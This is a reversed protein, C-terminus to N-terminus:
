PFPHPPIDRWDALGRPSWLPGGLFPLAHHGHLPQLGPVLVRAVVWDLGEAPLAPPTLVRFLAPRDAGLRDLLRDLNETRPDDMDVCPSPKHLVTRKLEDPRMSYYVAHDAFDRPLGIPMKHGVRKAKLYRVYHRGQIAELLSKRWSESRTERCASGVAFCYGDRDDGEVSAITVHDSFPTRVRFCRYRLNPRVLRDVLEAGLGTLVASADHGELPYRKWWAGILADREIVEQLGRLLIPQGLRGCSLGTSISPAIRGTEDCFPDLFVLDAPAWCPDGSDVRRCCVWRCRATPEHLAFPFNAQAYQEPHFLVWREPPVAPEALPWDRHSAEVIQDQPLKRSQWREVAEGVAAAEASAIDWGAGGAALSEGHPGWGPLEGAWIAVEPDHPRRPTPGADRLLGTYRSTFWSTTM